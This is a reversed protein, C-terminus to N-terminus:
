SYRFINSLQLDVESDSIPILTVNVGQLTVTVASPLSRIEEIVSDLRSDVGRELEHMRSCLVWNPPIVTATIETEANRFM